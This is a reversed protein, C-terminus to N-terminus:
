NESPREISDIVLVEVPGTEPVLKLGLQEQLATPLEPADSTGLADTARFKLTFNFRGPLGTKDVVVRNDIRLFPSQILEEVSIAIGRIELEQGNRALSLRSQADGSASEMKSENKAIVLAYMPLDRAEIHAKLKFRDALLSQQMWSLQQRREKATMNLMAAHDGAAIKATVRYRESQNRIWSPGGLIRNGSEIPLGYASEILLLIEGTFSVRDGAPPAPGPAPAVKEPPPSGAPKPPVAPPSFPNVTAVEFSPMPETPRLLQAPLPVSCAVFPLASLVIRALNM